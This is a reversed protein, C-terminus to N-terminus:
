TKLRRKLDSLGSKIMIVFDNNKKKDNTNYVTKLMGSPRQFNFHRKFLERDIGTEKKNVLETFKRWDVKAPEEFKCQYDDTLRLKKYNFNKRERANLGDKAESYKIRTFTICSM